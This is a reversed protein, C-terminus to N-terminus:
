KFHINSLSRFSKASKMKMFTDVVDGAFSSFIRDINRREKKETPLLSLDKLSTRLAEVESVERKNKLNNKKLFSM